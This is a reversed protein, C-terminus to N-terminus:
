FSVQKRALDVMSLGNIIEVIPKTPPVVSLKFIVLLEQVKPIVLLHKISQQTSPLSLPVCPIFFHTEGKLFVSYNTLHSLYLDVFLFCHAALPFLETRFHLSELHCVLAEGIVGYM